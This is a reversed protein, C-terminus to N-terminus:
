EFFDEDIEVLTFQQTTQVGIGHTVMLTGLRAGDILIVRPKIDKAFAVAESTFRSTTIFVGGAAGLGHLAGVFGQIDPRSIALDSKYRKAQIYIRELGLSDQNIM